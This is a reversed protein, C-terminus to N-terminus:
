RTSDPGTPPMWGYPMTKKAEDTRGAEVLSWTLLMRAENGTPVLDNAGELYAIDALIEEQSTATLLQRPADEGGFEAVSRRWRGGDGLGGLDRAADCVLDVAVGNAQEGLRHEADRGGRVDEATARHAVAAGGADDVRLVAQM